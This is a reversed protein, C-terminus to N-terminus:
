IMSKVLYRMVDNAGRWACCIGIAKGNQAWLPVTPTWWAIGQTRVIMLALSCFAVRELHNPKGRFAQSLPIDLVVIELLIHPGGTINTPEYIGTVTTIKTGYVTTFNSNNALKAIM